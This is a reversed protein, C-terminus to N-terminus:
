SNKKIGYKLEGPYRRLMELYKKRKEDSLKEVHNKCHVKRYEKFEDYRCIRRYLTKQTIGLFNAAARKSNCKKLAYDILAIDIAKKRESGSLDDSIDIRMM